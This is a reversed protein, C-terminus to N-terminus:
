RQTEMLHYSWVKTIELEPSPQKGIKWVLNGTVDILYKKGNSVADSRGYVSQDFEKVSEDIENRYIIILYKRLCNESTISAGDYDPNYVGSVRITKSKHGFNNGFIDCFNTPILENASAELICTLMLAGAAVAIRMEACNRTKSDIQSHWQRRQPAVSHRKRALAKVGGNRSYGSRRCSSGYDRHGDAPNEGRAAPIIV